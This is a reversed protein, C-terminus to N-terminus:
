VVGSASLRDLEERALGLETCYVAENDAGLVPAASTRWPTKALRYPAGPIVLHGLVPDDIEVWYGRARLQPDRAV